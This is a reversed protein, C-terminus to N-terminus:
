HCCSKGEDKVSLAVGKKASPPVDNAPNLDFFGSPKLLFGIYATPMVPYDEPRPIHTHGFTYWLVVDTNEIPRDQETWRILGDGGRARTPTTAPPTSRTRTSVADGLRPPEVFGARKRWWANPSAFPFATTARCSGTASRSASAREHVDPQRDELDAGDGPEPAGRAQKETKSRADAQAQFANEFPNDPASSTPRGRRGAPGHQGHRRPRLRAPRQLLAPPEPRLRQPAVLAGYKPKEGPQFAGLSLIGTLKVEFQINGDQYLYWFFGYEYNEVTSVSSIVLRRSRRVEPKDPLRRDTHKWLIGYDEEHM